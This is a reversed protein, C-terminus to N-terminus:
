VPCMVAPPLTQMSASVSDPPGPAHCGDNPTSLMM